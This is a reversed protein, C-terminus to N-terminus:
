TSSRYTKHCFILRDLYSDFVSVYMAVEEMDDDSEEHATSLLNEGASDLVIPKEQTGEDRMGLIWGGSEGENKKLVYERNRESAIRIPIEVHAKGISDTTILLQQTL